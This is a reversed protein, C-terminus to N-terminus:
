RLLVRHKSIKTPTKKPLRVELVGNNLSAEAKDAMVEEPLTVSRLIRSCATQSRVLGDKGEMVASAQREIRVSTGTVIIELQEGAIGPVEVLVRYEGGSDFLDAYSRWSEPQDSMRRRTALRTGESQVQADESRGTHGAFRRAPQGVRGGQSRSLAANEPANSVKM